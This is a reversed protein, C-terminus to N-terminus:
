RLHVKEGEQLELRKATGAPLELVYQAKKKSRYRPCPDEDCPPVELSMGVVEYHQNLWLIDLSFPVNKMWFSRYGEEEYFFLMGQDAELSDHFMLGRKKEQYTVAHEVQFCEDKICAESSDAAKLCSTKFILIGSIGLLLFATRLNM